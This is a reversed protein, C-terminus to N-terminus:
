PYIGYKEPLGARRLSGSLSRQRVHFTGFLLFSPILSVAALSYRFNALLLQRRKRSLIAYAVSAVLVAQEGRAMACTRENFREIFLYDGASCLPHYLIRKDLSLLPNPRIEAEYMQEYVRLAQGNSIAKRKDGQGKNYYALLQLQMAPERWIRRKRDTALAQYEAADVEDRLEEPGELM